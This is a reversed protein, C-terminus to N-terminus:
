YGKEEVMSGDAVRFIRGPFKDLLRYDHTAIFVATGKETNLRRLLFMIEDTTAPDLNGTPEDGIILSPTNLLARAIAVRQREGGSIEYPMRKEKGPLHVWELVEAIRAKREKKSSWDTAKLILNLNDYVSKDELLRFDQFIMGLRRRYSPIESISLQSLDVDDVILSGSHVPLSAFLTQLLSSKGSGTSGLLYCFDGAEIAFNLDSLVPADGRFINLGSATIINNTTSM